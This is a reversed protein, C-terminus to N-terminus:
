HLGEDELGRQSGVSSWTGPSFVSVKRGKGLLLISITGLTRASLPVDTHVIRILCFLCSPLRRM